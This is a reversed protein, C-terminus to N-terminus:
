VRASAGFGAARPPSCNTRGSPVFISYRYSCVSMPHSSVLLSHTLTAVMRSLHLEWWENM